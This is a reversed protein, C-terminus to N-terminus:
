EDHTAKSPSISAAAMPITCKLAGGYASKHARQATASMGQLHHILATIYLSVEKIGVSIAM